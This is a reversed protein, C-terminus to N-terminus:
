EPPIWRAFGIKNPFISIESVTSPLETRSVVGTTNAQVGDGSYLPVGNGAFTSIVGGSVKRVRNNLVDAIYLNGASDLAIGSPYALNAKTAPGGDGGSGCTTSGAVTTIIGTALTVMRIVCNHTDSIYLHGASDLALGSLGPSGGQLTLQALTAPGGDGSFGYTSGAVTTVIGSPDIKRVKSGADAYYLNGSTDFVMGSPKVCATLAQAGDANSCGASATIGAFSSIVGQGYCTAVGALLISLLASARM